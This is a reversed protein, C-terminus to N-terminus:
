EDVFEEWVYRCGYIAGAFTIIYSLISMWGAAVGDVWFLNYSAVGLILLIYLLILLTCLVVGVIRKYKPAIFAGAYVFAFAGAGGSCLSRFLYGLINEEGDVSTNAMYAFLNFLLAIAIMSIVSGPLILIWRLLKGIQSDLFDIM